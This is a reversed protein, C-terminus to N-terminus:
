IIKEWIWLSFNMLVLCKSQKEIIVILLNLVLFVYELDWLVPIKQGVFGWLDKISINWLM